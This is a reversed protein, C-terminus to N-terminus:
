LHGAFSFLLWSLLSCAPAYILGRGDCPAQQNPPSSFSTLRWTPLPTSFFKSQTLHYISVINKFLIQCHIDWLKFHM